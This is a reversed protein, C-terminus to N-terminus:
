VCEAMSCLYESHFYPFHKAGTSYQICRNYLDYIVLDISTKLIVNPLHVRRQQAIGLPSDEFRNLRREYSQTHNIIQAETQRKLENYNNNNANNM